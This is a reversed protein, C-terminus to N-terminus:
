NYLSRIVWGIIDGKENKVAKSGFKCGLMPRINDRWDENPSRDFTRKIFLGEVFDDEQSM